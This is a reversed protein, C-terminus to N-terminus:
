DTTRLYYKIDDGKLNNMCWEDITYYLDTYLETYTDNGSASHEWAKWNVVMALETVYEIDDKWHEFARNYTDKIADVGFKDAISFDMYFTTKPKYGTMAEINWDKYQMDYEKQKPITERKIVYM